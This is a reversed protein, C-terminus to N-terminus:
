FRWVMYMVFAQMTELKTTRLLNARGLASEAGQKFNDVLEQKTVAFENLVRKEDLSVAASFWAAFVIAQLSGIPEIGRRIEEWFRNYRRQFSPRHVVRAIPHVSLWYQEMLRDAGNKAPLHDILSAASSNIGFFLSSSPPLFGPGPAFPNNSKPFQFAVPDPSLSTSGSAKKAQEIDNLSM